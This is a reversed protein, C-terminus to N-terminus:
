RETPNSRTANLSSILAKFRDDNRLPSLDLENAIPFSDTMGDSICRQLAEIAKSQYGSRLDGESAKSIQSYARALDLRLDPDKADQKELEKILTLTADINGLRAESLMLNVKNSNDPSNTHMESRLVRSREFLATADSTLGQADRAVGLYYQTTGFYRKYKANTPDSNFNAEALQNSEALAGAGDDYRGCRLLYQGYIALQSALQDKSNRDDPNASMGERRSKISEEFIPFAEDSKGLSCLIAARGSRSLDLNQRFVNKLLTMREPPLETTWSVNAEVDALVSACVDGVEQFLAAAATLDGRKKQASALQMLVRQLQDAIEFKKPSKEDTPLPHAIIDRLYDLGELLLKESEAPNGTLRQKIPAWKICIFAMNSRSADSRNKVILRQKGQEYIKAYRADSEKIRDLGNWADAIKYRVAMLTPIAEGQIGGALAVDLEDWKKEVVELMGIRLDAIGPQTALRQDIETIVFQINKLALLAQQEALKQNKEAQLQAESALVRQREAEAQEKKAKEENAMALARQNEAIGKQRQAEDREDQANDREEAIIVAQASTAQWAWTTVGATSIVFLAALSSPIAITPNRKCWRWLRETRSIPRALIPEGNVFRRLDAALEACSQYRASPEKQLAKVCITELDVPVGPQLERPQVPDRQIVQTLTDMMSDSVFPARGTLLQYLVAGISYIDSCKSIAATDGRAQEPAMYSPTGVVAGDRTLHDDTDLKKALGFDSLKPRKEVDLLINAPKIDRHLIQHDHAYQMADAITAMLEAAPKASWPTGRLYSHLDQGEVFELSFYPLGEHEAIEFIQVIGPHQLAAVSQAESIFRQLVSSGGHLGSLIMKLAVIRNLQTHRAKYVVGMGGRGLVSLVEYNGIRTGVASDDFKRKRGSIPTLVTQKTVSFDKSIGDSAAMVPADITQMLSADDGSLGLGSPVDSVHSTEHIITAADIGDNTEKSAHASTGTNTNSAKTEAARELEEISFEMTLENPHSNQNDETSQLKANDDGDERTNIAM